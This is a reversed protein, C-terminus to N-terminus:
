NSITVRVKTVAVCLPLPCKILAECQGGSSGENTSSREAPKKQPHLGAIFSKRIGRFFIWDTVASCFRGTFSMLSLSPWHSRTRWSFFPGLFSVILMQRYSPAWPWEKAEIDQLSLHLHNGIYHSQSAPSFILILYVSLIHSKAETESIARFTNKLLRIRISVIRTM